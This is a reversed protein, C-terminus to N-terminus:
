GETRHPHLRRSPAGFVLEGPIRDTMDCLVVDEALVYGAQAPWTIAYLWMGRAEGVYTSRDPPSAVAWLPTPHGDARVEAGRFRADIDGPDLGTLGALGAGLGVGPEEAVIVVDAPGDALPAPGSFSVATARPGQRDDGAWAVGTLTWGYMLPWTVWFPTAPGSGIRIKECVSELVALTPQDVVHL